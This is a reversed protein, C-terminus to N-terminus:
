ILTITKFKQISMERWDHTWKFNPVIKNNPWNLLHFINFPIHTEKQVTHPTPSNLKQNRTVSM